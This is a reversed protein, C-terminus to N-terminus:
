VSQFGGSLEITSVHPDWLSACASVEQDCMLTFAVTYEALTMDNVLTKVEEDFASNIIGQRHFEGHM